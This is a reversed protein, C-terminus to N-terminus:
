LTVNFQSMVGRKFNNYLLLRCICLAIDVIDVPTNMNEELLNFIQSQLMSLQNAMGPGVNGQQHLVKKTYSEAHNRAFYTMNELALKGPPVVTFDELPTQHNDFGLKIFDKTHTGGKRLAGPSTEQDMDFAVRRLENVDRSANQNHM